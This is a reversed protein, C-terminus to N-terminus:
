KNKMAEKLWRQRYHETIQDSIKLAEQNIIQIRELLNYIQITNKRILRKQNYYKRILRQYEQNM